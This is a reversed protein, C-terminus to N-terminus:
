SLVGAWFPATVMAAIVGLGVLAASLKDDLGAASAVIGATVMPPMSSELLSTEWAAGSGDLLLAAGFVALPALGLRLVLGSVLPGFTTAERPIDLRMGVAVMTLPVLMAGLTAAVDDVVAPADVTRLILAVVLAVFPPFTVIRRLTGALTPMAGAGYRAAVFTGWTALALFSGLQDYVLAYPVHGPGLLAEVAPIGLFSTNGLPVVLLLTGVTRRPWDLIRALLLILLALLVLTGWAVAVPVVASPELDLDPVRAIILGPLALWLVLWDLAEPTRAPLSPLRAALVGIGLLVLVTVM